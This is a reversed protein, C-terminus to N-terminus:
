LITGIMTAIEVLGIERASANFLAAGPFRPMVYMGLQLAGDCPVNEIIELLPPLLL